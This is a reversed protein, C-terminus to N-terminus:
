RPLRRRSTSKYTTSSTGIGSRNSYGTGSDSRWSTKPPSKAWFIISASIQQESFVEHLKRQASGRQALDTGFPKEMVVRSREVLNAEGLM